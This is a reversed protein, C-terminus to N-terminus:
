KLNKELDSLLIDVKKEQENYKRSVVRLAERIEEPVTECYVEKATNLVITDGDEQARQYGITAFIMEAIERRQKPNYKEM